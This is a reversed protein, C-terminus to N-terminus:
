SYRHNAIYNGCTSSLIWNSKLILKGTESAIIVDLSNWLLETTCENSMPAHPIEDLASYNFDEAWNIDQKDGIIMNHM